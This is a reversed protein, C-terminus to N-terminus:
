PLLGKLLTSATRDLAGPLRETTIGAMALRADHPMLHLRGLRRLERTSSGLAHNIPRPVEQPVGVLVAVCRDGGLTSLDAELRAVGPLSCRAVLVMRPCSRALQSLWGPGALLGRLNGGADVVTIGGPVGRPPAALEDRGDQQNARRIVVVDDRRGQVWGDGVDGLEATSAGALGSCGASACEVVRARGAAQALVLAVTSAGAGGGCGIVLIPAEGPEPTWSTAPVSPEAKGSCVGRRFDGRQLALWADLLEGIPVPRTPTSTRSTPPNM